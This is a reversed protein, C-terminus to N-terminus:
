RARSPGDTRVALRMPLGGAPRLTVHADPRVFVGPELDLVFRQAIMATMLVAEVMAFTSAICVRRGAGFPVYAHRPRPPGGPLFRAPDFGEPNPWVAPDRHTLYPLLLVGTGAPIRFGDIVDDREAQRTLAWLPPSLRMSEQIVATTWPLREYDDFTPRRGDLVADVEAHLRTRADPHTSLYRWTWAMATATTEHGAGLFSVVEDRVQRDDMSPAGDEDRAALLMALLDPGDPRPDRRHRAILEDVLRHFAAVHRLVRRQRVPRARLAQEVTIGPVARLLSFLPSAAAATGEDLVSSTTAGIVAKDSASLATGFLSRAVADLALERMARDADIRGGSPWRRSWDDLVASCAATIQGALPGLRRKAFMPQVVRRQRRWLDGSSTTLGRGGAKALIDFDPGKVYDDQRSVLVRELHTARHLVVRPGGPIRLLSVDGYARALDVVPGLKDHRLRRLLLALELGRPGPVARGHGDIDEIAM